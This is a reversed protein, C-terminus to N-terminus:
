EGYDFWAGDVPGQRHCSAWCSDLYRETGGAEDAFTFVWGHDIPASVDADEGVKRMIAVYDLSGAGGDAPLWDGAFM